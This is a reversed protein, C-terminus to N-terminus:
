NNFLLGEDGNFEWEVFLQRRTGENQEQLTYAEPDLQKGNNDYVGLLKYYSFGGCQLSTNLQCQEENEQDELTIARNVAYYRGNFRYSAEETIIASSDKNVDITVNIEEFSYSRSQAQVATGPLLNALIFFFIVGIFTLLFFFLKYGHKLM